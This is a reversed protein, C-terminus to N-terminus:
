KPNHSGPVLESLKDMPAGCM